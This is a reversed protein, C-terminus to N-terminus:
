AWIDETCCQFVETCDSDFLDVHGSLSHLSKRTEIKMKSESFAVQELHDSNNM